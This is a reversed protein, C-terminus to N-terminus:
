LWPRFTSPPDNNEATLLEAIKAATIWTEPDIADVLSTFYRDYKAAYQYTYPVL